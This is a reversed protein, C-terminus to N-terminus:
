HGTNFFRKISGRSKELARLCSDKVSKLDSEQLDQVSRYRGNIAEFAKEYNGYRPDDVDPSSCVINVSNGYKRLVTGPNHELAEGLSLALTHSAGADAAPRLKEAVALWEEIGKSVGLLVVGWLSDNKCLRTVEVKAGVVKIDQLIVEPSLCSPRECFTNPEVSSVEKDSSACSVLITLCLTATPFKTIVFKM